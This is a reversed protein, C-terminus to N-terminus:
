GAAARREDDHAADLTNGNPQDDPLKDDAPWQDVLQDNVYLKFKSVGDNEDFYAVEVDYWGAKGTFKQRITGLHNQGDLAAAQGGSATEWPTVDKAEYGDLEM